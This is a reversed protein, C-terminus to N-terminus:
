SKGEVRISLCEALKRLAERDAHAVYFESFLALSVLHGVLYLFMVALSPMVITPLGDGFWRQIVWGAVALGTLAAWPLALAVFWLGPRNAFQILMKITVLDALVKLVRSLGYKSRGHVRPHHRVVEEAVRAGAMSSLAPLFRHMDAYLNLVRVLESRWAKLTCGNDHVPVGTLRAILWNAARSPLVRPLWRDKRDYRWGCVLDYGEELRAVLRPVDGPDSQLDGDMTVIVSGRSMAFGAAMAETQGLNTALTLVRIRPDREQEARLRRVTRDESGDDVLLLEWSKEWGELAARIGDCLPGVNDEENFLPVVISVDPRQHM